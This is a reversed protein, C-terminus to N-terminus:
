FKRNGARSVAGRIGGRTLDEEDHPLEERRRVVSLEEGRRRITSDDRETRCGGEATRRLLLVPAAPGRATGGFFPLCAALRAGVAADIPM